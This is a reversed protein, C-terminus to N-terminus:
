MMSLRLMKEGEDKREKASLERLRELSIMLKPAFESPPAKLKENARPPYLWCNKLFDTKNIIYDRGNPMQFIIKEVWNFFKRKILREDIGVAGTGSEAQRFLRKETIRFTIEKNLLDYYGVLVKIKNVPSIIYIPTPM